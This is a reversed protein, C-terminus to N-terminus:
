DSASSSESDGDLISRSARKERQVTLFYRSIM